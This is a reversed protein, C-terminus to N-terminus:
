NKCTSKDVEALEKAFVEPSFITATQASGIINKRWTKNMDIDMDMNCAWTWAAHGHGHQMGKDMSCAETWAAHGHKHKMDMDM